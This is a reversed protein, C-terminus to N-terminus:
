TPYVVVSLRAFGAGEDVRAAKGQAGGRSTRNCVGLPGSVLRCMDEAGDGQVRGGYRVLRM